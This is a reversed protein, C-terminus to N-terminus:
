NVIQLESEEGTNMVNFDSDDIFIQNALKFINNTITLISILILNQYYLYRILIIM